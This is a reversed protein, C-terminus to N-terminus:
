GKCAKVSNVWKNLNEITPNENYEARAINKLEVPTYRNVIRAKRPKAIQPNHLAAFLKNADSEMDLKISQLNKM